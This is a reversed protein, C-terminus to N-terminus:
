WWPGYNGICNAWIDKTKGRFIGLFEDFYKTGLENEVPFSSNEESQEKNNIIFKRKNPMFSFFLLNMKYIKQFVPKQFAWKSSNPSLRSRTQKKSTKIQM